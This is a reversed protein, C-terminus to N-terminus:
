FRFIYQIQCPSSVQTHDNDFSPSGDGDPSLSGCHQLLTAPYHATSQYQLASTPPQYQVNYTDFTPLDVMRGRMMYEMDFNGFTTM